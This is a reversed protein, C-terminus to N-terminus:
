TSKASFADWTYAFAFLTVIYGLHAQLFYKSFFMSVGTGLAIFALDKGLYKDRTTRREFLFLLYVAIYSLAQWIWFPYSRYISKVLGLAVIIPSFGIGEIPHPPAYTLSNASVYLVLNNLLAPANWIIFPLYFALATVAFTLSFHWRNRASNLTFARFMIFPAAVWATQKTAVAMGLFIGALLISRNKELFYVTALLLAIVVVDNVGQSIYTTFLPNLTGLTLFRVYHESMGFKRWGLIIIAIYAVAYIVRVDSWGLLQSSIRYQIASLWLLFPPTVNNFLAPNITGKAEDRYEWKELDTDVYPHDYPNLGLLLFRGAIETQLASDNIYAYHFSKQRNIINVTMPLMTMYIAIVIVGIIRFLLSWRTSILSIATYLFGLFILGAIYIPNNLITWGWRNIIIFVAVSLSLFMADLPM